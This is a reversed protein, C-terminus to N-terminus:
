PHMRRDTKNADNGQLLKNAAIIRMREVKKHIADLLDQLLYEVEGDATYPDRGAAAIAACVQRIRDDLRRTPMPSLAYSLTNSM